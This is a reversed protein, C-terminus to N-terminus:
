AAWIGIAVQIALFLLQIYLSLCIPNRREIDRVSAVILAAVAFVSNAVVVPLSVLLVGYMAWNESYSRELWAWGVFYASLFSSLWLLISLAALYSRSRRSAGVIILTASLAVFLGVVPILM